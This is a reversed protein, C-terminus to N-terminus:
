EGWDKRAGRELLHKGRQAYPLSSLEASVLHEKKMLFFSYTFLQSKGFIIVAVKLMRMKCIILKPLSLFFNLYVACIGRTRFPSRVSFFLGCYVSNGSRTMKHGEMALYPQMGLVICSQSCSLRNASFVSFPHSHLFFHSSHKLGQFSNMGKQSQLAVM